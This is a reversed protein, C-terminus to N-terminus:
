GRTAQAQSAPPRVPSLIALRRKAPAAKEGPPTAVARPHPRVRLNEGEWGEGRYVVGRLQRLLSEVVRNVEEEPLSTGSSIERVLEPLTLPAPAPTISAKFAATFGVVKEAVAIALPREEPLLSPDGAFVESAPVNRQWGDNEENAPGFLAVMPQDHQYFLKITTIM